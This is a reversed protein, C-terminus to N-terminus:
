PSSVSVTKPSWTITLSKGDTLVIGIDYGDKGSAMTVETVAPTQGAIVPELVAAFSAAPGRRTVRILSVRDQVSRFPGDGTLVETGELANITVHTVLGADNFRARIADDSM